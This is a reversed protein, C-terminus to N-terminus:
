IDMSTSYLKLGREGCPSRRVPCPLIRRKYIIEIWAGRVPLSASVARYPQRCRFKLGREGCPSRRCVKQLTGGPSLCKLGREGCPSRRASLRGPKCRLSIEIWAGRVPLSSRMWGGFLRSGFMEIWAGRVPLSGVSAFVPQKDLYKLGREGCPSRRVILSAGRPPPLM